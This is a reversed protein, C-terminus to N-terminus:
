ERLKAPNTNDTRLWRPIPQDFRELIRLAEAKPIKINQGIRYAKIQGKLFWNRVTQRTVGLLVGLEATSLFIKERNTMRVGKLIRKGANFKCYRHWYILEQFLDRLLYPPSIALIKVITTL